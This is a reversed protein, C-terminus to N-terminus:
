WSIVPKGGYHPRCISFKIKDTEILLKNDKGFQKVIYEYEGYALGNISKFFVGDDVKYKALMQNDKFLTIETREYEDCCPQFYINVLDNGTSYKISATKLLDDKKQQAQKAFYKEKDAEVYKLNLIYDDALDNKFSFKIKEIRDNFDISINYVSLLREDGRGSNVKWESMEIEKWVTNKFVFVKEIQKIVGVVILLTYDVINIDEDQIITFLDLTKDFEGYQQPATTCGKACCRDFIFNKGLRSKFIYEQYKNM